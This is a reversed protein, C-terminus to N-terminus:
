QVAEITMQKIEASSAQPFNRKLEYIIEWLGVEDETGEIIFDDWFEYKM